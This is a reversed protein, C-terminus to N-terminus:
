VNAVLLTDLQPGVNELRTTIASRSVASVLLLDAARVKREPDDRSPGASPPSFIYRRYFWCWLQLM